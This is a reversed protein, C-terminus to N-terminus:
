SPGKLELVNGAPDKVYFSLGDGRAGGRIGEEVIAVDHAALHARMEAEDWPGTAICVHDMNRGGPAPPRAWAGEDGSIDVLDILAAGARLQLMGYQPLATEVTCGLVGGYFRRAAAMDDVLLVVHDIGELAFPPPRTM